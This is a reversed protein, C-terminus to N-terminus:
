NIVDGEASELKRIELRRILEDISEESVLMDFNGNPHGPCTVFCTMRVDETFMTRLEELADVIMQGAYEVPNTEPNISDSM